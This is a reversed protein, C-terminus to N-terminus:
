RNNATSRCGPYCSPCNAIDESAEQVEELEWYDAFKQLVPNALKEFIVQLLPTLIIEAM